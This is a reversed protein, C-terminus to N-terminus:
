DGTQKEAVLLSLQSEANTKIYREIGALFVGRDTSVRIQAYLEALRRVADEKDSEMTKWRLTITMDANSYGFDNFAAGGDLTAIRNMRRRSEGHPDDGAMLDLHLAGYPDFTITSLHVRM